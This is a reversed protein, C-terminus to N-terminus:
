EGSTETLTSKSLVGLGDENGENENCMRPHADISCGSTIRIRRPQKEGTLLRLDVGPGGTTMHARSLAM